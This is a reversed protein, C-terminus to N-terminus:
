ALWAAGQSALAMHQELEESTKYSKYGQQGTSFLMAQDGILNYM